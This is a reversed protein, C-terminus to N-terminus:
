IGERCHQLKFGTCEHILRIGNKEIYKLELFGVFALYSVSSSWGRWSLDFIFNFAMIEKDKIFM